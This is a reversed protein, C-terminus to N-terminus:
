IQISQFNLSFVCVSIVCRSMYGFHWINCIFILHLMFYDYKHEESDVFLLKKSM